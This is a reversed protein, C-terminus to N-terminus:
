FCSLPYQGSVCYNYCDECEGSNSNSIKSLLRRSWHQIFHRLVLKSLTHVETWFTEMNHLIHFLGNRIHFKKLKETLTHPLHWYLCPSSNLCTLNHGHRPKGHLWLDHASLLCITWTVAITGSKKKRQKQTQWRQEQKWNKKRKLHM